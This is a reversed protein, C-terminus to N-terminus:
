KLWYIRVEEDSDLEVDEEESESHNSSINNEEDKEMKLYISNRYSKKTSKSFIYETLIRLGSRFTLNQQKFVIAAHTEASRCSFPFFFYSCNFKGISFSRVIPKDIM